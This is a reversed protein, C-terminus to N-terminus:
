PLITYQNYGITRFAENSTLCTELAALEGAKPFLLSGRQLLERRSAPRSPPKHTDTHEALPKPGAFYNTTTATKTRINRFNVTETLAVRCHTYIDAEVCADSLLWIAEAGVMPAPMTLPRLQPAEAPSVEMRFLSREKGMFVLNDALTAGTDLTAYFGFAYEPKLQQYHMKFFGERDTEAADRYTQPKRIGVQGGMDAFIKKADIAEGVAGVFQTKLGTKAKYSVLDTLSGDQKNGWFAAIERPAKNIQLSIPKRTKDEEEIVVFPLPFVPQNHHLLFVSGIRQIAGFTQGASEDFSGKGILTEANSKNIITETADFQNNQLLLQYRLMGLLTTQQPYQRSRQFYFM